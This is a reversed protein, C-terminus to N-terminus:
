AGARATSGPRSPFDDPQPLAAHGERDVVRGDPCGWFDVRQGDAPWAACELDVPWLVFGTRCCGRAHALWTHAGRRQVGPDPRDPCAFVSDAGRASLVPLGM